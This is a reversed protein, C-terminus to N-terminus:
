LLQKTDITFRQPIKFFQTHLNYRIDIPYYEKELVAKTLAKIVTLNSVTFNLRIPNNNGPRITSTKTTNMRAVEQGDYIIYGDIKKITLSDATPNNVNLDISIYSTKAGSEPYYKAGTFNTTIQNSLRKLKYLYLAGATALSIIVPKVYQKLM